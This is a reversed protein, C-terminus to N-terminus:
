LIVEVKYSGNTKGDFQSPACFEMEVESPSTPYLFPFKIEGDNTELGWVYNRLPIICYLPVLKGEAVEDIDFAGRQGPEIGSSNSYIPDRRYFTMRVQKDVLDRVLENRNHPNVGAQKQVVVTAM